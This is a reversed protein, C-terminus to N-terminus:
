ICISVFGLHWLDRFIEFLEAFTPKMKRSGPECTFSRFVDVFISLIRFHYLSRYNRPSDHGSKKFRSTYLPALKLHVGISRWFADTRNCALPKFNDSRFSYFNCLLLRVTFFKCFM